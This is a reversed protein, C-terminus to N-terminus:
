YLSTQVEEALLPEAESYPKLDSELPPTVSMGSLYPLELPAKPPELYYRDTKEDKYLRGERIGRNLEVTFSNSAREFEEQSQTDFVIPVLEECLLGETHESLVEKAIEVYGKKKFQSRKMERPLRVAETQSESALDGDQNATAENFDTDEDQPNINAQNGNLPASDKAFSSEESFSSQVKATLGEITTQISIALSRCRQAETAHAAALEEHEEAERNVEALKESLLSLLQDNDMM